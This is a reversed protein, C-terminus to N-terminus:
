SRPKRTPEARTLKNHTEAVVEVQQRLWKHALDMHVREHWYM